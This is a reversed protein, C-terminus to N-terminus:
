VMNFIKTGKYIRCFSRGYLAEMLKTNNDLDMICIMLFEYLVEKIGFVILTSVSFRLFSKKQM